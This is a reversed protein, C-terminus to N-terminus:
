LWYRLRRIPSSGSSLEARRRRDGFHECFCHRRRRENDSRRVACCPARAQPTPPPSLLLTATVPPSCMVELLSESLVLWM